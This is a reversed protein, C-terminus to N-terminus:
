RCGRGARRGGTDEREGQYPPRARKLEARLSLAEALKM